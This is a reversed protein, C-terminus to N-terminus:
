STRAGQISRESNFSKQLHAPLATALDVGVIKSVGREQMTVGFLSDFVEMTRRNHTIVIFQFKDSLAELLRNYKTVNVEDLAADVEDLFCFPTPNSKLLAFILSIATLAKEGGSFLTMSQPKKGPLRVMIEVGAQLPDEHGSLIIQAEGDPFLIPFLTQFERNLNVFTKMFKVAAHEKIEDRAKELIAMSSLVEDMQQTIFEKRQLLENYEKTAMMNIPGFVDIKSRIYKIDKNLQVLNTNKKEPQFSSIEIQYKEQAQEEISKLSLINKELELENESLNKKLQHQLTRCIQVKSELDKIQERTISYKEQKEKLLNDKEERIQILKAIESELHVRSERAHIISSKLTELDKQKKEVREIQSQLQNETQRLNNQLSNIREKAAAIDIKKQNLLEQLEERDFILEELATRIERIELDSEKREKALSTNANQLDNLETELGECQTEINKSQERASTIMEEKHLMQAELSKLESASEILKKNKEFTLAQAEKLQAKLSNNQKITDEIHLNIKEIQKELKAIQQSLSQAKAKQTILGTGSVGHRFELPSVLITGDSCFIIAGLRLGELIEDSLKTQPVFVLSQLFSKMKDNSNEISLMDYFSRGEVKSLWSNLDPATDSTLLSAYFNKLSLGKLSLLFDNFETTEFFCLRESWKEFANVAAAPIERISDKFSLLDTLVQYNLDPLREQIHKIVANTDSANKQLEEVTTIEAKKYLMEEKLARGKGEEEQQHKLGAELAIELKNRKDIAENLSKRVLDVNLRASDILILDQSHNDELHILRKIHDNKEKAVKQFSKKILEIRGNNTDVIRDINRLEQRLDNLKNNFIHEKENLLDLQYRHEGLGAEFATSSDKVKLFDQNLDDARKALEAANAKEKQLETDANNIQLDGNTILQLSYKLSEENRALGERAHTLEESLKKIEPDSAELTSMMQTYLAEYRALDALNKVDHDSETAIKQQLSKILDKLELSRTAFLSLELTKLQQTLDQWENSREVQEKLALAQKEIEASLDNVRDLNLKTAEIKRQTENERNRFVMTGAAEEIIERIEEPKAQLIRDVQGQQIMSYSKSGLASSVFFDTIDKFRCPKHNIFYERNGDSYIHRSIVIEEEHRYEVPCFPSADANDFILSVEAMSHPTRKESGSFIIDTAKEGRLMKTNQEGMVWRVADIINSKGSGNPGIIGTIHDKQFTITVREAFSKFGSIVIKKLYM